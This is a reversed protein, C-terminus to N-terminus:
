GYIQCDIIEYICQSHIDNKKEFHEFNSSSKLFPSFFQFYTKLTKSLEMQYLVKLELIYCLFCKHDAPLTKIFGQGVECILM